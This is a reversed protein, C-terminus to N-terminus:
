FFNIYYGLLQKKIKTVVTQKATGVTKKKKKKKKKNKYINCMHM